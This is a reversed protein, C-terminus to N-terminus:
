NIKILKSLKEKEEAKPIKVILIGNEYNATIKEESVNEPLQYSKSFTGYCFERRYYNESENTEEKMEKEASITLLRDKLDIKFDKKDLGPVAAEIVFEKETEKVNFAPATFVKDEYQRVNNLIEDFIAPMFMSNRLTLM